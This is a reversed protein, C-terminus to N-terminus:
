VLGYVRERCSARGIEQQDQFAAFVSLGITDTINPHQGQWRVQGSTSWPLLGSGLTKAVLPCKNKAEDSYWFYSMDLTMENELENNKSISEYM